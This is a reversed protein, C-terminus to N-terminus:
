SLTRGLMYGNGNHTVFWNTAASKTGCETKKSRCSKVQPICLLDFADSESIALFMLSHLLQVINRYALFM